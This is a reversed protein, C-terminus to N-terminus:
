QMCGADLPVAKCQHHEHLLEACAAVARECLAAKDNTRLVIVRSLAQM